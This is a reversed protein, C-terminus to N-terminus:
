DPLTYRLTTSPNFPNPYSTDLRYRRHAVDALDAPRDEYLGTTSVTNSFDPSEKTGDGSIARVKYYFTTAGGGISVQTDTYSTDSIATSTILTSGRYVKYKASGRPESRSWTLKPHGGSNSLTLNEPSTPQFQATHQQVDPGRRLRWIRITDGSDFAYWSSDPNYGRAWLRHASGDYRILADVGTGALGLSDHRYDLYFVDNSSFSNTLRYLGFALMPHGGTHSSSVFDWGYQFLTTDLGVIVVSGPSWLSDALTLHRSNDWMATWVGTATYEVTGNGVNFQQVFLELTPSELDEQSRGLGSVLLLSLPIWLLANMRM